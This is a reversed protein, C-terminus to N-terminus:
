KRSFHAVLAATLAEVSAKEAEVVSPLAAARLAATTVPGLSGATVGEMLRVAEERGVSEAFREWTSASTFTVLNLRRRGLLGRLREIGQEDAVTDYVPLITVRAGRARLSEELVDRAASARPILVADGSTVEVAGALGEQIFERPVLDALIGREWLKEATKEGIAAVRTGALIRADRGCDFIYGFFVRVAQSSTFIVWRYRGAALAEVEARAADDMPRPETRITPTVLVDAGHRRLSTVLATSQEAPRTVAARVGFLPRKEAWALAERLGVVDGIVTVAPPKFGRQEVVDGVEALTSILVEQDPTTGWRVLAVPTDPRRGNRILEGAIRRLNTIGMLLVLTGGMRALAAWDADADGKEPDEHGTVVHFSVAMGRQTVPIGAYAPAAIASTVGPVIEFEIGRETLYLAEEGGRGFVFPDGGKLRVVTKGELAKEALLANIEDQTRTHQRVSKGVYIRECGAPARDLLAENALYDFVVVDAAALCEAGRVTILGVDGPGAGVLYVKGPASPKEPAAGSAAPPDNPKSM